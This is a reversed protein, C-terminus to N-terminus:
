QVKDHPHMLRLGRQRAESLAGDARDLIEELERRLPDDAPIRKAISQVQLAIGQFAQLLTDYLECAMRNQADVQAALGLEFRTTARRLRWRHLAWLFGAMTVAILFDGRSPQHFHGAIGSWILGTAASLRPEPHKTQSSARCDPEM